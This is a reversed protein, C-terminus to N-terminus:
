EVVVVLLLLKGAAGSDAEGRLEREQVLASM